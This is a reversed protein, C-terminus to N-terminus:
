VAAGPGNPRTRQPAREALAAASSARKQRSRLCFPARVTRATGGSRPPCGQSLQAGRRRLNAGQGVRGCGQSLRCPPGHTQIRFRERSIDTSALDSPLPRVPADAGALLAARGPKGPGCPRAPSSQELETQRAAAFLALEAAARASRAGCRVGRWLRPAACSLGAPHQGRVKSACHELARLPCARDHRGFCIAVASFFREIRRM